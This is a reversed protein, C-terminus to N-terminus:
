VVLVFFFVIILDPPNHLCNDILDLLSVAFVCGLRLFVCRCAFHCFFGLGTSRNVCFGGFWFAELFWSGFQLKKVLVVYEFYHLSIFHFM